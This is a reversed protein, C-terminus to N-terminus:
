PIQSSGFNISSKMSSNPDCIKTQTPTNGAASLKRRGYSQPIIRQVIEKFYLQTNKESKNQICMQFGNVM